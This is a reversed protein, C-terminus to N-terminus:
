GYLKGEKQLELRDELTLHTKPYGWLNVTSRAIYLEFLEGSRITDYHLVAGNMFLYGEIFNKDDGARFTEIATYGWMIDSFVGPVQSHSSLFRSILSKTELHHGSNYLLWDEKNYIENILQLSKSESVTAKSISLNELSPAESM